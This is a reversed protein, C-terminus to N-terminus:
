WRQRTVPPKRKREMGVAVLCFVVNRHRGSTGSLAFDQVSGGERQSGLPRQTKEKRSVSGEWAQM